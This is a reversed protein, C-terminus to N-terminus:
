QDKQRDDATPEKPEFQMSDQALKEAKMMIEPILARDHQKDREMERLLARCM